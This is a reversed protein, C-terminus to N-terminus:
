RQQASIVIAWRRRILGSPLSARGPVGFESRPVTVRISDGKEKSRAKSGLKPQNNIIACKVKRKHHLIQTQKETAQNANQNAAGYWILGAVLNGRISRTRCGMRCCGVGVLFRDFFNQLRNGLGQLQM